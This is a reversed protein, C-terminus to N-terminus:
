LEYLSLVNCDVRGNRSVHTQGFYDARWMFNKPPDRGYNSLWSRGTFNRYQENFSLTQMWKDYLGREKVTLVGLNAETQEEDGEVYYPDYTLINEPYEDVVWEILRVDPQNDPTFYFRHGPFSATGFASFPSYHRMLVSNGNGEWYHRLHQNSLNIFKAAFGNFKPVVKTRSGEAEQYFTAVDPEVYAAFQQPGNGVDYTFETLAPDVSDDDTWSCTQQDDCRSLGVISLFSLYTGFKM